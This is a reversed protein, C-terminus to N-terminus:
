EIRLGRLTLLETSGCNAFIDITVYQAIVPKKFKLVRWGESADIDCIDESNGAIDWTNADNSVRIRVIKPARILNGEQPLFGISQITRRAKLDVSLAQPYKPKKESHWGPSKSSFLGDSSYSGLQSGSKVVPVDPDYVKFIYHTRDALMFKNILRLGPLNNEGLKKIMELVDHIFFTHSQLRERLVSDVIPNDLGELLIYDFNNEILRKIVDQYAEYKVYGWLTSFQLSKDVGLTVYRLSEAQYIVRNSFMGLSFVAIKANSIGLSKLKNVMAADESKNSAPARYNLPGFKSVLFKYERMLYDKQSMVAVISFAQVLLLLTVIFISLKEFKNNVADKWFIFFPMVAYLFVIGLFIRRMDSTGTVSYGVLMPMLIAVIGALAYYVVNKEIERNRLAVFSIFVLLFLCTLPLAGYSSAVDLFILFINKSLNVQDNTQAGGGFSNDYAWIYIPKWYFLLWLSCIASAPMIFDEILAYKACSSGELGEIRSNIRENDVKRRSAFIEFLFISLVIAVIGFIFYGAYFNILSCGMISAFAVLVPFIIEQLSLYKEKYLYFFYLFLLPVLLIISEVPRALMTLGFFLGALMSLRRITLNKSRFISALFLVFWMHWVTEPMFQTHISFFYPSTAITGALLASTLENIRLTFVWYYGFATFFQVMVLFIAIPLLEDYQYFYIFPAAFASFLIPKGGTHFLYQIGQKFGEAFALYIRYAIRFHDGADTIPLENNSIQWALQLVVSILLIEIAVIKKYPNMKLM